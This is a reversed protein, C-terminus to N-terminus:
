DIRCSSLKYTSFLKYCYQMFKYFFCTLYVNEQIIINNNHYLYVRFHLYVLKNIGTVLIAHKSLSPYRNIM